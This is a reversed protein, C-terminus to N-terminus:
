SRSVLIPALLPAEGTRPIREVRLAAKSLAHLGKVTLTVPLASPQQGSNFYGLLIEDWRIGM